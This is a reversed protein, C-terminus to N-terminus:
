YPYEHGSTCLDQDCKECRPVSMLASYLPAICEKAWVGDQYSAARISVGAHLPMFRPRVERLAPCEDTRQLPPGRVRLSPSWRPVVSNTRVSM